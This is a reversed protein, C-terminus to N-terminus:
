KLIEVAGETAKVTRADADGPDFSADDIVLDAVRADGSRRVKSRWTATIPPLAIEGVKAGDAMVVATGSVTTRLREEAAPEAAIAPTPDGEGQAENRPRVHPPPETSVTCAALSAVLAVLFLQPLRRMALPPAVSGRWWM